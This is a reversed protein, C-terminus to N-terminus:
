ASRAFEGHLENAAKEYAEHAQEATDFYGLLMIKANACIRARWKRRDALWIVGKYGSKNKSMPGVNFRNQRPTCVRLESKRNDTKIGFRHDVQRPDKFPLGMVDRHMRIITKQGNGSPHPTSRIAYGDKDLRWTWENLRGYDEDDVLIPEGKRAYITKV